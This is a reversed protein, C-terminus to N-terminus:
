QSVSFSSRLRELARAHIQCVRQRSVGLGKAIEATDKGEAYLGRLVDHHPNGLPAILQAFALAQVCQREPNIAQPDATKDELSGGDEGLPLDLPVTRLRCDRRRDRFTTLLAGRICDTAYSSFQFGKAPDFHQAAHLLAMYGASYADALRDPDALLFSFGRQIVFWILTKNDETKQHVPTRPRGSVACAPAPTSM